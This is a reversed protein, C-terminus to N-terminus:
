KINVECNFIEKVLRKMKLNQIIADVSNTNVKVWKDIVLNYTNGEVDPFMEIRIRPNAYLFPALKTLNMRYAIVELKHLAQIFTQNQILRHTQYM